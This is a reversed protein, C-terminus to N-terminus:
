EAVLTLSGVGAELRISWAPGDGGTAYTGRNVTWAGETAVSSPGRQMELSVAAAAPVVLRLSVAGARIAVTMGDPLSEDLTLTYTGAPCYISASTLGAGLAVDWQNFAAPSGAAVRSDNPDQEIRLTGGTTTLSPQWDNVNYDIQGQALGEAGGALVLSVTGPALALEAETIASDAPTAQDISFSQAEVIDPATGPLAILSNCALGAFALAAVLLNAYRKM